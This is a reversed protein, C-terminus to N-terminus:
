HDHSPTGESGHDIADTTADRYLREVYHMFEVYEAVFHRGAEVNHDRHGRAKAAKGYRERIGARVADIVLAELEDVSGEDLAEDGRRLAIGPDYGAPRLGTYPAGEAERHIRVVTEFFWTDALDRAEGGAERVSMTRDFANRIADEDGPAIWKLVPEVTGLELAAKADTVVPGDVADCHALAPFAVLFSISALLSLKM